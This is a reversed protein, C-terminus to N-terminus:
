ITDDRGVYKARFFHGKLENFTKAKSRAIQFDNQVGALKFEKGTCTKLYSFNIIYSGHPYGFGYKKLKEYTEELPEALRIDPYNSKSDVQIDYLKYAHSVLYVKTSKKYKEIYVVHRPNIIIQKKNLNTVLLPMNSVEEMRDLVAMVYEEIQKGTMNKMIYRFPQVEISRPSPEVYGTYFVLILNTDSKRIRKAVEEGDMGEMQIDLFVAAFRIVEMADLLDLGSNFEHIRLEQQNTINNIHKILYERDIACDDCVAIEYM